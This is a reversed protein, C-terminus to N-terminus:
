KGVRELAMKLDSKVNDPVNKDAIMQNAKTKFKDFDKIKIYIIAKVFDKMFAKSEDEATLKVADLKVLLPELKGQEAFKPGMNMFANCLQDFSIKTPTSEILVNFEALAEETKTNDLAFQAKFYHTIFFAKEPIFEKLVVNMKDYDIQDAEPDQVEESLAYAMTLNVLREEFDAATFKGSKLILEKNAKFYRVDRLNQLGSVHVMVLEILDDNALINTQKALYDSIIQDAEEDEFDAAMAAFKLFQASNLSLADKKLTYYQSTAEKATQGLKVFDSVPKYGIGKHLLAGDANIFLLYPYATVAYKAALMPGEGKEMDYKVNIFNANYYDASAKDTYVESDMQKCPGCWTAYADLFIIKNEKKAKALVTSWVPNDLFNIEANATFGIFFLIIICAVKKM